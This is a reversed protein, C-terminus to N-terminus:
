SREGTAPVEVTWEGDLVLFGVEPALSQAAKLCAIIDQKKLKGASNTHLIVLSGPKAVSVTMHVCADRQRRFIRAFFGCM